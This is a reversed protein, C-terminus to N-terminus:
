EHGTRYAKCTVILSFELVLCNMRGNGFPKTCAAVVGVGARRLLEKQIILHAEIAM